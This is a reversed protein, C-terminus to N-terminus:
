RIRKQKRKGGGDRDGSRGGKVYKEYRALLEEDTIHNKTNNTRAADDTRQKLAADWTNRVSKNFGGFSRRGIIDSGVGYMDVVSALELIIPANNNSISPLPSSLISNHDRKRELNSGDASSPSSSSKVNNNHRNNKKAFLNKKVEDQQKKSSSDVKRQMFRMGMTASSLKKSSSGGSKPSTGNQKSNAPTTSADPKATGPKWMM